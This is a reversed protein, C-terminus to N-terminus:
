EIVKENALSHIEFFKGETGPLGCNEPYHGALGHWTGYIDISSGSAELSNVVGVAQSGEELVATYVSKEDYRATYDLRDVPILSEIRLFFGGPSSFPDTDSWTLVGPWTVPEGKLPCPDSPACSFLGITSLM